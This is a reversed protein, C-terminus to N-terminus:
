WMAGANGTIVGPSLAGLNEETLPRMPFSKPFTGCWLDM